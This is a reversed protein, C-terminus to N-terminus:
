RFEGIPSRGRAGAWWPFRRARSVSMVDLSLSHDPKQTEHHGGQGRWGLRLDPKLSLIGRESMLEQDQPTLQLAASTKRVVIAPEEDLHKSPKQQDQLDNRDDPGFRQCMPMPGAKTAKPTPFQVRPSAMVIMAEIAILKGPYLKTRARTPSSHLSIVPMM